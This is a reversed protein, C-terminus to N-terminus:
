SQGTTSRLYKRSSVWRPQIGVNFFEFGWIQSLWWWSEVLPFNWVLTCLCPHLEPTFPKGPVCSGWCYMCSAHRHMSSVWCEPRLPLLILLTVDDEAVFHIQPWGPTRLVEDWFDVVSQSSRACFALFIAHAAKWSRSPLTWVVAYLSHFVTQCDYSPLFITVVHVKMFPIILDISNTEGWWQM